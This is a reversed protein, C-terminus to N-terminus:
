LELVPSPNPQRGLAVLRLNNLHFGRTIVHADHQAMYERFESALEEYYDDSETRISHDLQAM